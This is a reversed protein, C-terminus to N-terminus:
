LDTTEIKKWRESNWFVYTKDTNNYIMEGEIPSTINLIQERSM